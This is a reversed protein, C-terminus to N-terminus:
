NIQKDSVWPLEAIGSFWENGAGGRWCVLQEVVPELGVNVFLGIEMGASWGRQERKSALAHGVGYLDNQWLGIGRSTEGQILSELPTIEEPPNIGVIKVKVPRSIGGQNGSQIHPLLAIAPFHAKMFRDRKFEHTIVTVNRPYNGTHLRFRLLSFLVNQYSDTAHCEAIIRGSDITAMGPADQFFDNETVFNHYSRGESLDTRSKKTPGGSFMLLASPDKALIRLGAKVHEIFTPTEGKQFPEILWESEDAGKRPGGIYIAHCCVVILHELPRSGSLKDHAM